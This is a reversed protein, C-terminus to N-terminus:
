SVYRIPEREGMFDLSRTCAEIISTIHMGDTGSSIQRGGNIVEVFHEVLVALAETNEIKPTYIEGMTYEALNEKDTNVFSNHIQVKNVTELDNYIVTKNEGSFIMKRIKIPSLWNVHVNFIFTRYWFTCYAISESYGKHTPIASCSVDIPYEGTIHRVISLDHPLLDYLVNVGKRFLGMNVRVSDIYNIKDLYKYGDKIYNVSPTFMFTHDVVIKVGQERARNVLEEGDASNLVFPKEILIHKKHKIAKSALKFHTEPPTCIVVADIGLSKFITNNNNTTITNPYLRNVEDWIDENIDCIYALDINQNNNLNRALNKGWYGYGILGVSFM